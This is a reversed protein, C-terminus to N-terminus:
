VRSQRRVKEVARDLLPIIRENDNGKILYDFAGKRMAQVSGAITGYATLMIIEVQPFRIKIKEIFALGDGDPLLVDCLIVEVKENEMQRFGARLSDAEFVTFGELSIIRKLLLRLKNEDDILLINGRSMRNVNVGKV